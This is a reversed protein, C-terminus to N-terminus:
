KAAGLGRHKIAIPLQGLKCLARPICAREGIHRPAASSNMREDVAPTRATAGAVLVVDPRGREFLQVFADSGSGVMNRGASSFLCLDARMGADIRGCTREGLAAAAGVTAADVCRDANVQSAAIGVLASLRTADSARAGDGVSHVGARPRRESLSAAHWGSVNAGCAALIEIDSRTLQARGWVTTDPRLLQM